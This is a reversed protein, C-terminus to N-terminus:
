CIFGKGLGRERYSNPCPRLTFWGPPKLLPIRDHLLPLRAQSPADGPTKQAKPAQARRSAAPLHFIWFAQPPPPPVWRPLTEAPLLHTCGPCGGQPSHRRRFDNFNSFVEWICVPTLVSCLEALLKNCLPRLATFLGWFPVAKTCPPFFVGEVQAPSRERCFFEPFSRGKQCWPPISQPLPLEARVWLELDLRPAIGGARVSPVTDIQPIKEYLFLRGCARCIPPHTSQLRRPVRGWSVGVCACGACTSRGTPSVARALVM